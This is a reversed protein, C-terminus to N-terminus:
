AARFRKELDELMMAAEVLKDLPNEEGRFYRYDCPMIDLVNILDAHNHRIATEHTGYWRAIDELPAEVFNVKRVTYDLAAAWSEPHSLDLYRKGIAVRYEVWMQIAAGIIELGVGNQPMIVTLRSEVQDLANSFLAEFRGLLTKDKEVRIYNGLAQLMLEYDGVRVQARALNLHYEPETDDLRTAEQFLTIASEMEWHDYHELGTRNLSQARLKDTTSIEKVM